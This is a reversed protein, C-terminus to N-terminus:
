AVALGPAGDVRGDVGGVGGVVATGEAEHDGGAGHEGLVVEAFAAVGVAGGGGLHAEGGDLAELAALLEGAFEERGDDIADQVFGAADAAEAGAGAAGEGDLELLEGGGGEVVEGGGDLGEGVGEVDGGLVAPDGWFFGALEQVAVVGLGVLGGGLGRRSRGSNRRWRGGSVWRRWM